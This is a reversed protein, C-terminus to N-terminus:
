ALDNLFRLILGATVGTGFHDVSHLISGFALIVALVLIDDLIDNHLTHSCCSISLLVKISSTLLSIFNDLFGLGFIFCGGCIGSGSGISSVRQSILDALSFSFM